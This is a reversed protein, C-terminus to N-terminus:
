NQVLIRLKLKLMPSRSTTEMASDLKTIPTADRTKARPIVANTPRELQFAITASIQSPLTLIRVFFHARWYKKGSLASALASLNLPEQAPANRQIDRRHQRFAPMIIDEYWDEYTALNNWPWEGVVEAGSVQWICVYHDKFYQGGKKYPDDIEYYRMEAAVDLIPLGQKLRVDPDIVVLTHPGRPERRMNAIEQAAVPSTTFSIYPTPRWDGHKIHITLSDKRSESTDLRKYPARSTMCRKQPQSGSCYDSIRLLPKNFAQFSRSRWPHCDEEPKFPTIDNPTLLSRSSTHNYPITNAM